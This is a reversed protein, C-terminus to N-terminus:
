RKTEEVDATAAKVLIEVSLDSTSVQFISHVFSTIAFMSNTWCTNTGRYKQGLSYRLQLTGCLFGIGFLSFCNGSWDPATATQTATLAGVERQFLSASTSTCHHSIPSLLLATYDRRKHHFCQSCRLHQSYKWLHCVKGVCASRLLAAIISSTWSWAHFEWLIHSKLYIKGCSWYTHTCLGQLPSQSQTTARYRFDTTLCKRWWCVANRIVM